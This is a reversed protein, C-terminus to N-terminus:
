CSKPKCYLFLREEEFFTKLAEVPADACYINEEVWACTNFYTEKTKSTLTLRTESAIAAIRFKIDLWVM